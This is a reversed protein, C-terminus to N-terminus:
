IWPTEGKEEDGQLHELYELHGSQFALMAADLWDIGSTPDLALSALYEIFRADQGEEYTFCYKHEGKVLSLRRVM